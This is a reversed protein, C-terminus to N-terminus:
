PTIEFVTGCDYAGGFQTTGYLNGAADAVLGAAPLAGNVADNKSFSYLIAETGNPALKFVTGCGYAQDYACTGGGYETTGYLNGAGDAILWGEPNAGDGHRGSFFHLVTETGGPLIEFVIGCGLNGGCGAKGGYEAVGFLDGSANMILSAPPGAGDDPSGKFKYLVRYVREPTLEFVDGFGDGGSFNVGFLNGNSDMIVGAGPADGAEGGPKFSHLQKVSGARSLEFVNGARYKGGGLTTSYFKDNAGEILAGLPTCGDDPSGAFTHAVRERSNPEIEFILGCDTGGEATSGYLRRHRDRLLPAVPGEGSGGGTFDYLPTESGGAPITFVTGKSGGGGCQGAGGGSTVGYLNGETDVIVGGVPDCGDTNGAFSHLLKFNAAHAADPHVFTVIALIAGLLCVGVSQPIKCM